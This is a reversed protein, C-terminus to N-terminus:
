NICNPYKGRAADVISDVWAEANKRLSEDTVWALAPGAWVNGKYKEFVGGGDQEFAYGYLKGQEIMKLLLAHNYVEHVISIFIATPKMGKLLSDTILNQTQTNQAVAPFICDSTKMLKSLSVKWFRPDESHKSWYQVRMGLSQCIEGIRTGITGMGVIGAVKGRLEMGRYATYDQKWENKALLPIKRMLSQAMLVAWEAVAETSFGKLHTVPINKKKAYKVDVWSFSTTQLCVAKLNPVTDFVNKPVIWNCFDPDIALIRDQKGSFLQPIDEFSKVTDVVHLNGARRLKKELLPPILTHYNPSVLFIEM